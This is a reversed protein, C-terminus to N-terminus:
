GTRLAAALRPDRRAEEALLRTVEEAIRQALAEVERRHEPRIRRLPRVPVAAATV